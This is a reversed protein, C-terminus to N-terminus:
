QLQKAGKSAASRRSVEDRLSQAVATGERAAQARQLVDPLGKGAM